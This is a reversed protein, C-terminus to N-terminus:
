ILGMILRYAMSGPQPISPLKDRSFWKLESIENAEPVLDGSKWDAYYALMIQDPYPWSQSGAYRINTIEIGAEEQVERSVCDEITEGAEVYGALCTFVDTNRQKHRALLIKDDKQVLVIMAPSITPYYVSGCSLCVKATEDTSDHLQNGCKGCFRSRKRWNLLALGRSLSNIKIHNQAFLERIPVWKWGNPAPAGNELLLASYNHNTETFWDTALQHEIFKYYVSFDPLRHFEETSVLVESGRYIFILNNESVIQSNIIAM